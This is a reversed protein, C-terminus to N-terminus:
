RRSLRRIESRQLKVVSAYRQEVKTKLDELNAAIACTAASMALYQHGHVLANVGVLENPEHRHLSVLPGYLGPHVHQSAWEFNKAHSVWYEKGGPTRRELDDLDKLMQQFKVPNRAAKGTTAALLKKADAPLQVGQNRAERYGQLLLQILRQRQRHESPTSFPWALWATMELLSRVLSTAASFRGIRFADIIGRGFEAQKAAGHAILQGIRPEDFREGSADHLRRLTARSGLLQANRSFANAIARQNPTPRFPAV